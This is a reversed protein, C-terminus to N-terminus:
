SSGKFEDIVRKAISVEQQNPSNLLLSATSIIIRKQEPTARTMNEFVSLGTVQAVVVSHSASISIRGQHAEMLKLLRAFDSENLSRTSGSLKDLRDFDVWESSSMLGQKQMADGVSKVRGVEAAEQPNQHSCGSFAPIFVLLLLVSLAQKMLQITISNLIGRCCQNAEATSSLSHSQQSWKIILLQTWLSM